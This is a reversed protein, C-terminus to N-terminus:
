RPIREHCRAPAAPRPRRTLLQRAGPCASWPRGLEVRPVGHVRCRSTAPAVPRAAVGYALQPPEGRATGASRSSAASCTLAISASAPAIGRSTRWSGRSQCRCATARLRRQGGPDHDLRRHRHDVHDPRRSTVARPRRRRRSRRPPARGTACGSAASQLVAQPLRLATATGVAGATGGLRGPVQPRGSRATPPHAHCVPSQGIPRNQSSAEIVWAGSRGAGCSSTSSAARSSPNSAVIAACRGPRAAPSPVRRRGGRAVTTRCTASCACESIMPM